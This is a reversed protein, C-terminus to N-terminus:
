GLSVPIGNTVHSLGDADPASLTTGVRLGHLTLTSAPAGSSVDPQMCVVEGGFPTATGAVGSYLKGTDDFAAIFAWASSTVAANKGTSVGDFSMSLFEQGDASSKAYAALVPASVSAADFFFSTPWAPARRLCAISDDAGGGAPISVVLDGNPAAALSVAGAAPRTTEVFDLTPTPSFTFYTIRADYLAHHAKDSAAARAVAVARNKAAALGRKTKATTKIKAVAATAKARALKKAAARTPGKGSVTKTVAGVGSATQVSSAAAGTAGDPCVTQAVTVTAAGQTATIRVTAVFRKRKVKRVSTAKSVHPRKSATAHPSVVTSPACAASAPSSTGAVVSLTAGTLLVAASAALSRKIHL